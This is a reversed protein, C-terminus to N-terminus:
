QDAAHLLEAATNAAAFPQVSAHPRIRNGDAGFLLLRDPRARLHLTQGLGIHPAREALMRAIVPESLRPMDLHVYVDSGMHEVLRVTGRLADHESCATVHFEEPRIGLTIATGPEHQRGFPLTSGAVDITGRERVVGDLMNIKPSGIFEAVRRDAPDAYIDQPSSLQHLSGDLMVAVRDSLTM